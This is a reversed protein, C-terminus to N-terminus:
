WGPTYECVLTTDSSSAMAALLSNCISVTAMRRRRPTQRLHCLEREYQDRPRLSLRLNLKFIAGVEEAGCMDTISHIRGTECSALEELGSRLPKLRSRQLSFIHSLLEEDNRIILGSWEPFEFATRSATPDGAQSCLMRFIRRQCAHGQLVM